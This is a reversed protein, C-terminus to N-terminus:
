LEDGDEGDGPAGDPEGLARITRGFFVANLFLRQGGRWFGRFNPDDPLAVVVGRGTPQAVAAATGALRRQNEPSVFGALLPEDAYVAPTAYPSRAPALWLTNKRLLPLRDRAYGYALPHTLDLRAEVIAGAIRGLAERDAAEVYPARAEAAAAPEPKAWALEAVKHEIAWGIARGMVILTGGARVWDRVRAAAAEPVQAYRGDALVLVHYRSLDVRSLSAPDLLTPALGVGQDLLHWAAGIDRADVGTGAVLAVAPRPLPVFSPSGLDVGEMSLGSACAYVRVGDEAVARELLAELAERREPQAAAPILLAGPHLTVRSGDAAEITLPRGTLGSVRLGARQLRHLTRPAHHASWDVLYAYAEGGGVRRGQLPPPEHLREGKAPLRPLEAHPLGHALPLSWASVDYFVSDTFTTRRTFIETLLRFQPQEVPVVWAEGPRYVQGDVALEELLPHVQVRHRLLVDILERARAPDGDDGLVHARFPARAAEALAEPVAARHLAALEARLEVAAEVTALSTLVQNRIARGFGLEGHITEIAHGRASAQEFLLGVAGHLDPYTSGKGPYFEDFREKTFYLEGAGDLARRHFDALARTVRQVGPPISPNERSPVGPQFFYTTNSGMEHFDGAVHPRWRHFLEARARAEPHVLPLWDRNPDFWYRNLRGRPWPENHERDAPDLSPSSISRHGNFWTASRDHGDPNRIPEILLVLDALLREAEPSRASAFHYAVWPAANSASPEDGHVGYGLNVIVPADPRPAPARDAPALEALHRERREELRALQQPAAITVLLLERREHSRGIEEVRVREPAAAALVRLYANIQDSRLHWEGAEQGFFEAPSPVRPDREVGAPLLAPTAAALLGPRPLAFALLSLGCVLLLPRLLRSGSRQM